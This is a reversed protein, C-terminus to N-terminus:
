ASKVDLVRYVSQSQYDAIDQGLETLLASITKIDTNTRSRKSVSIRFGGATYKGPALISLAQDRLNDKEAKAQKETRCLDTYDEFLGILDDPLEEGQFAPCTALYGCWGCLPGPETTFAPYNEPDPVSSAWAMGEWINIARKVLDPVLGPDPVQMDSIQIDGRALDIVLVIGAPEKQLCHQFLAMQAQLQLLYSSQIETSTSSKCELILDGDFIFDCHAKIPLLGLPNGCEPCYFPEAPTCAAWWHCQSCYPIDAALEAQREPNADQLATAVIEEALHGRAFRLLAALDPERPSVKNLIAKRPCQPIDSVGIYATRDGLNQLTAQQQAQMLGHKFQDITPTQM